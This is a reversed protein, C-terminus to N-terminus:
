WRVGCRPGSPVIEDTEVGIRFLGHGVKGCGQDDKAGATLIETQSEILKM